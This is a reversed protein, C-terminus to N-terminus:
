FSANLAANFVHDSTDPGGRKFGHQNLYGIDFTFKKGIPIGVMVANRMRDYGGVSQFPVKNLNFFSEHSVTLSTKGALPTSAKVYPRLRWGTGSIGERWREELRVRGSLKVEGLKAFNDISVQQRFRHERLVFDGHDYQPNFVYGLAVTVHKDLKKGVMLSNEVEYFGRADSTRFVTENSLKFDDPLAVGVSITQWYQTDESALAPMATAVLPFAIALKLLGHM